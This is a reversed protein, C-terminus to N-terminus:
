QSAARVAVPAIASYTADLKAKLAEGRDFTLLTSREEFFRRLGPNQMAKELAAAFADIVPQPTGKPAWWWHQVCFSLDYGQEEATPVDAVAPERADALDALAKLGEAQYRTFTGTSLTTADIIGGKIATVNDAEGGIQVIRLDAGPELDELLLGVMHLNGGLNAGYLVTDPRARADELLDGLSEYPSDAAVAVVHCFDTTGAVPEFDEYSFDQTGVAGASMMGLHHLLFTYGDPASALVQRAGVSGVAGGTVNVVAVPQSLLEDEALAKQFARATLDTTGGPAFPVIVTIPREPYEAAAPAAVLPALAASLVLGAARWGRTSRTTM